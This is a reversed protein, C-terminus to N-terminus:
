FQVAKNQQCTRSRKLDKSATWFEMGLVRFVRFLVEMGSM